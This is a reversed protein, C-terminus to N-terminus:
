GRAAEIGRVDGDEDAWTQVSVYGLREMLPRILEAQDGGLELLLAGGRRLFHPAGIVVRCLTETGDRGGDYLAADEFTLTDRPLLRLEPTPVYPVVAVVVDTRGELEDPVPAFLDGAFAEVGNVRACAVARRDIDTAVVRAGPKAHQLALAVAGSGTCVDIAAGGAPLRDAARRALEVSQWRPM